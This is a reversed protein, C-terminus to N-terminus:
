MQRCTMTNATVAGKRVPQHVCGAAVQLSSTPGAVHLEDHKGAAAAQTLTASKMLM